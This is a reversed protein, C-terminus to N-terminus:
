VGPVRSRSSARGNSPGLLLLAASFTRGKRSGSHSWKLADLDDVHRGHQHPGIGGLHETIVAGVDDLHFREITVDRPLDPRRAMGSHPRYEEVGVAVLARDAEVQLIRRPAVGHQPQDLGGVHQNVVHTRLRHRPQLEAVVHHRFDVRPQDIRAHEAEALVPGIGGFRGIVIQNLARGRQRRQHRLGAVAHWAIDGVRQDITNDPERSDSGYAGAEDVAVTGPAALADIDM